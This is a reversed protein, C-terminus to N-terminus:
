YPNAGFQDNPRRMLIYTFENNNGTNAGRIAQQFERYDSPPLTQCGVSSPRTSNGVHIQIATAAHNQDRERGDIVGNQNTDRASNRFEGNDVPNFRGSGNPRTRYRYVGPRIHAIDRRGDRNVDPTGSARTSFQGPHSASRLPGDNQEVLRGNEARFVSTQGTYARVHNSRDQYSASGPPPDQDIQIAYARGNEPPWQGNARLINEAQQERGAKTNAFGSNVRGPGTVLDNTTPQTGNAPAAPTTNTNGPVNNRPVVRPRTTGNPASTGGALAGLTNEGVVGDVSLNNSRQFDRVASQTRPGFDGDVELQPQAGSQNLLSQLERVETGSAGRKVVNGSGITSQLEPASVRPTNTPLSRNIGERAPTAAETTPQNNTGFTNTTNPTTNDTRNVSANNNTTRTAERAQNARSASSSSGIRSM